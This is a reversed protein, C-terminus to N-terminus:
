YSYNIVADIFDIQHCKKVLGHTYFLVKDLKNM